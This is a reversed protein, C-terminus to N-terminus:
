KIKKNLKVETLKWLLRNSHLVKHRNMLRAFLTEKDALSGVIESTITKGGKTATVQYIEIM